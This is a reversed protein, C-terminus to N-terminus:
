GLPTAIFNEARSAIFGAEDLVLSPLESRWPLSAIRYGRAELLEYMRRRDADADAFSEFIILPRVKELTETGGSLVGYESGETDVKMLVRQGGLEGIYDDLTKLPVRQVHLGAGADPAGNSEGPRGPHITGLWTEREPYALDVEGPQDGLAVGEIRGTLGNRDCIERFNEHCSPNPEFTIAEVGHALFLVSHLGYNAGIDLFVEPPEASRLCSDYTRKIEVDHGVISLANDWDLWMRESRLPM